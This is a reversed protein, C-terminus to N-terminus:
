ASGAATVQAVPANLWFSAGDPNDSAIWSVNVDPRFILCHTSGGFHFMGLEDGKVVKQGEQVTVECSSVEAMGVAMFCMLGVPENAQIYINARAAMTCIFAQSDNPAAPDFGMVPSEAYYTGPVNEVHVITGNVPSHWRHYKTASLFAQHISGGVFQPIYTQNYNLMDALSYPQEKIWFADREKVGTRRFVVTSECASTVIDDQPFNVPRVGPVFLRTFFDDWSTFNWYPKTKDCIYLKDFDDATTGMATMAPAGFWGSESDNLVSCSKESILYKVWVDLIAKFRDNVAKTTFMQYGAPTGMPWDLIANIPFGVLDNQEFDPAYSTIIDNLMDLMVLYDRIQPKGTPDNDYPPKTPVQEFMQHFGMYIVPDGEILAKLAKISDDWDDETSGQERRQDVMAVRKALWGQLVRHDQPLWGGVRHKVIMPQPNSTM